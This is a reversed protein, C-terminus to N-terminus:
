KVGERRVRLLGCADALLVRLYVTCERAGVEWDQVTRRPILFRQGFAIQSLGTSQRMEAIGMHAVDWINGLAEILEADIEEPPNSPDDVFASSLALDSVYADRDSSTLAEGMAFYFQKDTMNTM